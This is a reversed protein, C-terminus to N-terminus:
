YCPSAARGRRSTPRPKIRSFCSDNISRPPCKYKIEKNICQYHTTLWIPLAFACCCFFGCPYPTPSPPTLPLYSGGEVCQTVALCHTPTLSTSPFPASLYFQLRCNMWRRYLPPLPLHPSSFKRNPIPTFFQSLTSYLGFNGKKFSCVIAM